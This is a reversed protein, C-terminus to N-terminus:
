QIDGSPPDLPVSNAVNRNVVTPDYRSWHLLLVIPRSQMSSVPTKGVSTALAKIEIWTLESEGRILSLVLETM